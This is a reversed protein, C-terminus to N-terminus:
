RPSDPVYEIFTGLVARDLELLPYFLVLAVATEVRLAQTYPHLPFDDHRSIWSAASEIRAQRYVMYALVYALGFGVVCIAAKKMMPKMM